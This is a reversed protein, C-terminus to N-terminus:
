LNQVLKVCKTEINQVWMGYRQSDYATIISTFKYFFLLFIYKAIFFCKPYSFQNLLVGDWMGCTNKSNESNDM